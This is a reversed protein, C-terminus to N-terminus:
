GAEGEAPRAGALLEALEGRGDAPLYPLLSHAVLALYHAVAAEDRLGPHSIGRESLWFRAVLSWTGVLRDLDADEALGVLAGRAALGRVTAALEARRRLETERYVEGLEPWTRAVHVISETLCRYDLQALLATRFAELLAPVTEVRSPSPRADNRERLEVLLARVLDEKRTFWYSLNGPSMELDRALDRVGVNDIGRANFLVRARDLIRQRTEQRNESM